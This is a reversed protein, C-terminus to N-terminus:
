LMPNLAKQGGVSLRGIMVDPYDDYSGGSQTLCTYYHDSAAENEHGPISAYGDYDPLMITSSYDKFADGVLLVFGLYGDGMHEASKTDYVAKIFDRIGECSFPYGTMNEVDVISVNYGNHSARHNALDDIYSSNYLDHAVMMLYDTKNNACATVTSCRIVGAIAETKVIISWLSFLIIATVNRLM